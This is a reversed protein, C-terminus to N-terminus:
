AFGEGSMAGFWVTGGDITLFSLIAISNSSTSLNPTAGSPWVISAPFTSVWGGTSNQRLILTFSCSKGVTAGTFTFTCDSTLTVDHVNANALNITQTSSSTPTSVTEKGGDINRVVTHGEAVTGPTEGFPIDDWDAIGPEGQEGQEGQEGTEGPPGQPGTGYRLRLVNTSASSPFTYKLM